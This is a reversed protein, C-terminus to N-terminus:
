NVKPENADYSQQDFQILNNFCDHNKMFFNEGTHDNLLTQHFIPKSQISHTLNSSNTDSSFLSANPYNASVHNSETVIM